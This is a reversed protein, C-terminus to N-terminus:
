TWNSATPPDYLTLSSIQPQHAALDAKLLQITWWMLLMRLERESM